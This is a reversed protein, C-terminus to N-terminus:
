KMQFLSIDVSHEGCMFRIINEGMHQSSMVIQNTVSFPVPSMSQFQKAVAETGVLPQFEVSSEPLGPGVADSDNWHLYRQSVHIKKIYLHSGRPTESLIKGKISYQIMSQWNFLNLQSYMVQVELSDIHLARNHGISEIHYSEPVELRPTLHWFHIFCVYGLPFICNGCLLLFILFAFFTFFIKRHHKFIFSSM